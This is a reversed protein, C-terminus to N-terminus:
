PLPKVEIDNQSRDVEHGDAMLIGIVSYTGPKDFTVRAVRGAEETKLAGGTTTWDIKADRGLTNETRSLFTVTEGVVISHSSPRVQLSIAKDKRSYDESSHCGTAAVGGLLSLSVLCTQLYRNM